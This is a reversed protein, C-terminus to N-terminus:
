CRLDEERMSVEAVKLHKDSGPAVIIQAESGEMFYEHIGATIDVMAARKSLPSWIEGPNLLHTIKGLEDTWVDVVYRKTM